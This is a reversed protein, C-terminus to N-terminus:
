APCAMAEYDPRDGATAHRFARIVRGDRVLFVGPMQFGDGVLKGVRHGALTAKLGRIWVRPGFLALPGGRELGFAEYLRKEGDSVRAVDGLGYERFLERARDDPAMHVLVLGVGEGEIGERRAAVDSLAERCFTCGLHRLFVVLVASRESLELLSEGGSTQSERMVREIDAGGENVRTPMTSRWTRYLIVGFPAWWILDNTLITWGFVWPLEGRSASLVFGIPGFVKGLLGVLVIPWHGLPDLSAAAYGIGYVGVIMGVCQWIGPYRPLDAGILEFFFNPALVVVSGWVM